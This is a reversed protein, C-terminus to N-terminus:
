SIKEFVDSVFQFHMFDYLSTTPFIINMNV